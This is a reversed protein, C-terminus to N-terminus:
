ESAFPTPTLADTITHTLVQLAEPPTDQRVQPVQLGAGAGPDCLSPRQLLLEPVLGLRGQGQDLGDM